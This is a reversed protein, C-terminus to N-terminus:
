ATASDPEGREDGSSEGDPAPDPGAGDALLRYLGRRTQDLLERARAIQREDGEQFVQWAAKVTTATLHRLDRFTDAADQDDPEWPAREEGREALQERGADTIEFVRGTDGQAARILGEDELQSLAPYVSGPSPTWRGDSRETLAQMLQYGNAPGDLDLLMLLALRVDGRRRRMGRRGPGRGGRGGFPGPGFGGPGFGGPGLGGPGFGGPGFPGRHRGRVYMVDEAGLPQGEQMARILRARDHSRM